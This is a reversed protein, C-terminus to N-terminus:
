WIPWGYCEHRDGDRIPRFCSNCYALLKKLERRKQEEVAKIADKRRQEVAEPTFLHAAIISM